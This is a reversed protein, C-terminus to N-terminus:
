PSRSLELTAKPAIGRELSVLTLVQGGITTSQSGGRPSTHLRIDQTGKGPARWQLAIEANGEWVCQVNPPCRSDDILGTYSLTSRDALRKSEGLGLQFRGENSVAAGESATADDSGPTAACGALLSLLFATAIRTM